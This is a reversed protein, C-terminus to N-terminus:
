AYPELLLDPRLQQAKIAGKTAHEIVFIRSAPVQQGSLIHSIQPASMGIARGFEAKNQFLAIADEFYNIPKKTSKSM